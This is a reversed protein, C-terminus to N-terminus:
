NIGFIKIKFIYQVKDKDNVFDYILNNILLDFEMQHISNIKLM